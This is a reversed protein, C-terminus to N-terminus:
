NLHSHKGHANRRILGSRRLFKRLSRALRQWFTPPRVGQALEHRLAECQKETLENKKALEVIQSQIEILRKLQEIEGSESKPRARREVGVVTM